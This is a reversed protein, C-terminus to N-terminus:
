QRKNDASTKDSVQGPQHHTLMLAQEVEKTDPWGELM